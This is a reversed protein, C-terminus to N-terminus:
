GLLRRYMALHKEVVVEVRFEQEVRCRAVSALKTRLAPDEVLREIANALEGVSGKPVLLGTKGDEVVERCGPVDTAVVPRGCAGAELLVTPLGERYSPLVVISAKSLVERIDKRYGWWEVAGDHVWQEVIRRPIAARNGSDIPGVLVFRVRQGQRERVIRAADVFEGVGKDWLIRGVFVVLLPYATEEVMRPFARMDVGAGKILVIDTSALIGRREFLTYDDRNQVMLVDTLHRVTVCLAKYVLGSIASQEKDGSFLYGMGTLANVVRARAAVTRAAVSGLIIPKLTMHHILDPQIRRYLACLQAFLRAELLPNLSSRDLDLPVYELGARRIEDGGGTDLAAITVIAGADRAALAVPLWQSLFYWDVNMVICIKKGLLAEGTAERRGHNGLYPETEKATQQYAAGM